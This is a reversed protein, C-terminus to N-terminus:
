QAPALEPHPPFTVAQKRGPKRPGPVVPTSEPIVIEPLPDEIPEEIVLLELRPPLPYVRLGLEFGLEIEKQVLANFRRVSEPNFPDVELPEGKFLLKGGYAHNRSYKGTRHPGSKGPLYLLFKV